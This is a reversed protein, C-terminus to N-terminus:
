EGRLLKALSPGTVRSCGENKARALKGERLYKNISSVSCALLTACEPITLVGFALRDKLTIPELSKRQGSKRKPPQATAEAVPATEISEHSHDKIHESMAAFGLSASPATNQQKSIQAEARLGV